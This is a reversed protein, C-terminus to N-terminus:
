ELQGEDGARLMRRGSGQGKGKGIGLAYGNGKGNAGREAGYVPANTAALLNRGKGKGIGLAYGNGKGNAGREAGDVPANTAALLNRGKGKGKDKGVGLALGNGKGNEGHVAGYVPAKDSALARRSDTPDFVPLPHQHSSVDASEDWTGAILNRGKGKGKDKGVGLALGNGKGNGGHVAGYVPAKDSALAHRSDISDIVPLPHQQVGDASEDWTGAILNRGKGKGKDKGVGLALGNGKGNGGHVAGYVPAKDSALARRSDISDIVPLPHQQVGDASEDWTGAILNRGKGKGKDKGVGLALGNGKGNGGHVAGYVPAKDSALARRSDTPDFVPLPHQQVGDASEDWTGAILNRGKGKGKDKGVGLALGNGKGNGGHVAGYVPAKDSALARRSDTPHRLGNSDGADSGAALLEAAAHISAGPVVIAANAALLATAVLM